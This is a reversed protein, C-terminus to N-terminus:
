ELTHRSYIGTFDAQRGSVKALEFSFLLNIKLTHISLDIHDIWISQDVLDDDVQFGKNNSHKYERLVDM